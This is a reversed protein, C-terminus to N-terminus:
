YENIEYMYITLPIIFFPAMRNGLILHDPKMAFFASIFALSTVGGHSKPTIM